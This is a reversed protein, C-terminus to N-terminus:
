GNLSLCFQVDDKSSLRKQTIFQKVNILSVCVCILRSQIMVEPLHWIFRVVARSVSAALLCAAMMATPEYCLEETASVRIHTDM